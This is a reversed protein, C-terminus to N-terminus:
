ARLILVGVESGLRDMDGDACGDPRGDRSGVVLVGERAGTVDAGLVTGEVVAGLRRRGVATGVVDGVRYSAVTV